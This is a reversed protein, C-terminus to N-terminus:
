PFWYKGKTISLLGGYMFGRFLYEEAPGIVLFSVAIMIWAASPPIELVPNPRNLTDIVSSDFQLLIAIVVVSLFIGILMLAGFMGLGLKTALKNNKTAKSLLTKGFLLSVVLIPIGYVIFYGAITGFEIFYQSYVAIFHSNYRFPVM